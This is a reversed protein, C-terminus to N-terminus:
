KKNKSYRHWYIKRVKEWFNNVTVECQNKWNFFGSGHMDEGCSSCFSKPLPEIREPDFEEGERIQYYTNDTFIIHRSLTSPDNKWCKVRKGSIHEIYEIDNDYVIERNRLAM